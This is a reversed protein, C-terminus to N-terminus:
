SRWVLGDRSTAEPEHVFRHIEEFKILGDDVAGLAVRGSTAGLDVAAYTPM